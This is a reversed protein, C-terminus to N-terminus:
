SRAVIPPPQRLIWPLQNMSKKRKFLRRKEPKPLVGLLPLGSSNAIDDVSRLRKDFFERTFGALLALGAAALLAKIANKGFIQVKTENPIEALNLISVNSQQNQSELSSQSYRTQVAEYARQTVEVDRQM